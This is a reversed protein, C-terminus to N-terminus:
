LIRVGRARGQEMCQRYFAKTREDTNEAPLANSVPRGLFAHKGRGMTHWCLLDVGDLAPYSRSIDAIRRLHGADDNVGPILPCRLRIRANHEILLDFTKLVASLPAGTLRQHADPDSSKYDFLYLDTWPLTDRFADEAGIGATDLCTHLGAQKCAKLLAITFQGQFMPEGGSVTIGGGTEQYYLRDKLAERLIEDVTVARGYSFLAGTPCVAACALCTACRGRDLTIRGEELRLADHPCVAVCDGCGVCKERNLALDIDPAQTEPNHCWVCSLPCGKLFVTTRLGPGDVVSARHIDTIMGKLGDTDM